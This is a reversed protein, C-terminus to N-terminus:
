QSKSSGELFTLSFKPNITASSKCANTPSKGYVVDIVVQTIFFSNANQTVSSAEPSTTAAAPSPSAPVSATSAGELLRNAVVPPTEPAVPPSVNTPETPPVVPDTETFYVKYHLEAAYNDCSCSSADFATALPQTGSISVQKFKDMEFKMVTGITPTIMTKGDGSEFVYSGINSFDMRLCSAADMAPLRTLVCEENAMNKMM